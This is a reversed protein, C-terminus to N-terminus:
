AGGGCHLAAGTGARLGTIGPRRRIGPAKSGAFPVLLLGVVVAALNVIPGARFVWSTTRSYVAGKRFLKSIDYYVQLMPQGRRGALLAKTRNIIGPLFPAAVLALVLHVISLLEVKM